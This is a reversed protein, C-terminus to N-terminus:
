FKGPEIKMHMLCTKVAVWEYIFLRQDSVFGPPFCLAQKCPLSPWCGLAECFHFYWLPKIQPPIEILSIESRAGAHSLTTLRWM